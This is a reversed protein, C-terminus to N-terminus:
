ARVHEHLRLFPQDEEHISLELLVDGARFDSGRPRIYRAPGSPDAITVLDGERVAVEQIVVRDVGGPVPAGTFIRVCTGPELPGEFGAGAFSEGILRLPGPLDAERVGYGDMSSCDAPPSHIRAVVPAALVRGAAEGIPVPERGIPRAADTVRRVAEDFSIM